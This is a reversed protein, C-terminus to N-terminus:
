WDEIEDVWDDLIHISVVQIEECLVYYVREASHKLLYYKTKCNKCIM